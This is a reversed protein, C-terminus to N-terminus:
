RECFIGIISCRSHCVFERWVSTEIAKIWLCYVEVIVVFERRRGCLCAEVSLSCHVVVDMVDEVSHVM